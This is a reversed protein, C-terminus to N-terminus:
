NPKKWRRNGTQSLKERARQFSVRSLAMHEYIFVLQAGFLRPMQLSTCDVALCTELVALPKLKKLCISIFLSSCLITPCSNNIIVACNDYKYEHGMQANHVSGGVLTETKLPDFISAIVQLTVCILTSFTGKIQSKKRKM